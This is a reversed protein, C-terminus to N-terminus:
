LFQISATATRAALVSDTATVTVRGRFAAPRTVTVVMAPAGPGTAAPAVMVGAAAAAVDVSWNVTRGGPQADMNVTSTLAGAAVRAPTARLGRLRVSEVRVNGDVRRNPFISDAARVRFTGTRVGATLTATAPLLAPNGATIAIDGSLVTWNISRGPVTSAVALNATAVGDAALATAGAATPTAVVGTLTILPNGVYPENRPPAAVGGFRHETRFQPAAPTGVLSRIHQGDAFTRSVVAGAGQWSAYQFGQRYILQRPLGPVGPGAFRNIDIAPRGDAVNLLGALTVLQDNWANAPVALNLNFAPNFAGNAPALNFDDRVGTILEGVIRTLPPHLADSSAFTIANLVGYPGLPGAGALASVRTPVANVTLDAMLAAPGAAAPQTEDLRAQTATDTIRLGIDGTLSGPTITTGAVTAGLSRRFAVTVPRGVPATVTNVTVTNGAIGDRNPEATNPPPVGPGLSPVGALPPAATHTTSVVQVLTVAPSDFFDGPTATVAARLVIPTGGVVVGAGPQAARVSVRRGSGVISVGAPVAGGPNVTWTLPTRGAVTATATIQPGGVGLDAASTVVNTVLPAAQRYRPPAPSLSPAGRAAAPGSVGAGKDQQVVHALEHALLRHHESAEPHTVKNGFVIDRGSTFARAGVRTAMESAAPGTHLRVASFDWGFAGEFRSRLGDPLSRGEGLESARSASSPAASPRGAVSPSAPHFRTMVQDAAQDAEAEHASGDGVEPQSRSISAVEHGAVGQQSARAGETLKYDDTAKLPSSGAPGQTALSAPALSAAVQGIHEAVAEAEQEHPEGPQSVRLGKSAPGIGGRLAQAVHTLEHALLNRGSHTNPAFTGESFFIDEGVTFAEANLVRTAQAAVADTHIRVRELSVGLEREMERRLLLPLPQGAGRQQLASEVAPDHQDVLGSGVARRYLTVAHREAAHWVAHGNPTTTSPLPERWLTARGAIPRDTVAAAAIVEQRLPHSPGLRQLMEKLGLVRYDDFGFRPNAAHDVQTRRGPVSPKAIDGPWIPRAIVWTTEQTSPSMLAPTSHPPAQLAAMARAVGSADPPANRDTPGDADNPAMISAEDAMSAETVTPRENQVAWRRTEVAVLTERGPVRARLEDAIWTGPSDGSIEVGVRTVRGPDPRLRGGRAAIRAALGHFRQRAQEEDRRGSSDAADACVRKWIALALERSLDYRDGELLPDFQDQQRPRELEPPHMWRTM